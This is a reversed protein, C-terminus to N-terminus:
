WFIKYFKHYAKKITSASHERKHNDSVIQHFHTESNVISQCYKIQADKKAKVTESSKEEVKSYAKDFDVTLDHIPSAM